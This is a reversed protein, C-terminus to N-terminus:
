IRTCGRLRTRNGPGMGLKQYLQSHPRPVLSLQSMKHCSLVRLKPVLGEYDTREYKGGSDCKSIQFILSTRGENSSNRELIENREKFTLSQNRSVTGNQSNM